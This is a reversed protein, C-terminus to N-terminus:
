AIRKRSPIEAVERAGNDDHDRRRKNQGAYPVMATHEDVQQGFGSVLPRDLPPEREVAGEEIQKPLSTQLLSNSPGQALGRSVAPLGAAIQERTMAVEGLSFRPIYPPWILAITDILSELTRQREQTLHNNAWEIVTGSARARRLSHELGTCAARWVEFLRVREHPDNIQCEPTHPM